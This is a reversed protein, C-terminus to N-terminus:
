GKALQIEVRPNEKDQEVVEWSSSLHYQVNDDIIVNVDKLADLTFKEVIAIINSPDCIKNKYFLKYHVKFTPLQEYQTKELQETVLTHYYRKVDNQEIHYANRYWNLAVLFTKAKGKPKSYYIPLTLQM